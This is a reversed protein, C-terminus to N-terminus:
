QEASAWIMTAPTGSCRPGDKELTDVVPIHVKTLILERVYGFFMGATRRHIDIEDFAKLLDWDESLVAVIRAEAQSLDAQILVQGKDPVLMSRIDKALRGHKPITHFALGLKKPRVPKKLTNTSTRATETGTVKFSTKCRGDYDPIFNIARSLQDRIRREELVTELIAKKIEADKGKCHNGLLAIISDESTPDKVRKPFKLASYLLQYMQPYSKTNVEYGVQETLREHVLTRMAEYKDKLYKKKEFDVCFGNNEMQLYFKHKKMIYNYYLEKLPVKFKNSLEILDSEQEEDIEITVCADKGNYKFFKDVDFKTGIKAEKGEDKYFPERTWLSSLTNLRKDPLEPFITHTKFLVDSVVKTVKFGALGLKFEDYKFNQGVIGKSLLVEQVLKWCEALERYSMDTLDNKGVSRLLPVTISHHRTFAFAISVPVCNISEIDCSVKDLKAYEQIFRYLDLSNRAISHTRDPLNLNRSHSEEVARSIDAQILKKYVYSLAGKDQGPRPFLAAPHITAVVKPTGDTSRLISGRYNLIGSYGTVANLAEDGVALIINPKLRRIEKEWLDRISAALDVGILNLQKFDNNPPRYKVVNTLYCEDRKTGATTLMEDLMAGTPGVFPIGSEDEYKGPAEGLVLIKPEFPGVGNVYNPV